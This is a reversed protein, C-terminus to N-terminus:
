SAVVGDLVVIMGPEPLCESLDVFTNSIIEFALGLGQLVAHYGFDNLCSLPQVARLLFPGTLLRLLCITSKTTNLM